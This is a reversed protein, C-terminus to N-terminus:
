KTKRDDANAFFCSLARPIKMLETRPPIEMSSASLISERDMAKWPGALPNLWEIGLTELCTQSQEGSLSMVGSRVQQPIGGIDNMALDM